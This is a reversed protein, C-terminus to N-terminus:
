QSVEDGVGVLEGVGELAIAWFRPVEIRGQRRQHRDLKGREATGCGLLLKGLGDVLSAFRVQGPTLEALGNPGAAFGGALAVRCGSRTVRSARGAAQQELPGPHGGPGAAPVSHGVAPGNPGLGRLPGPGGYRGATSSSVALWLRGTPTLSDDAQLTLVEMTPTSGDSLEVEGPTRRM